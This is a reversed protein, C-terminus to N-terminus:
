HRCQGAEFPRDRRSSKRRDGCDGKGIAAGGARPQQAAAVAAEGAVAEIRRVGAAIASEHLIKFLGIDGTQRVHTGGCLEMSYGDLSPAAPRARGTAYGGIQVVRVVDGYKDGFFQMVEPRGKVEAYSFDGWAVPANERM